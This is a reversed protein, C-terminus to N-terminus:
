ASLASFGQLCSLTPSFSRLTDAIEDQLTDQIGELVSICLQVIGCWLRSLFGSKCLKPSVQVRYFHQQSLLWVHLKPRSSIQAASEGTNQEVASSEKSGAHDSLWARSVKAVVPSRTNQYVQRKPLCFPFFEQHHSVDGLSAVSNHLVLCSTNGGGAATPDGGM